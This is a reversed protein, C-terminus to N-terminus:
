LVGRAGILVSDPARAAMGNRRKRPANQPPCACDCDAAPPLADRSERAEVVDAGAADSLMAAPPAFDRMKEVSQAEAHARRAAGDCLGDSAWASAFAAQVLTVAAALALTRMAGEKM